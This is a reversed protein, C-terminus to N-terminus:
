PTKNAPKQLSHTRQLVGAGAAYPSRRCSGEAVHCGVTGLEPWAHCAAPAKRLGEVEPKRRMFRKGQCDLSYRELWNQLGSKWCTRRTHGQPLQEARCYSRFRGLGPLPEPGEKFSQRLGPSLSNYSLRCTGYEQSTKRRKGALGKNSWHRM